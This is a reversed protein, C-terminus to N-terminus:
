QKLTIWGFTLDDWVDDNIVYNHEELLKKYARADYEYNSSSKDNEEAYIDVMKQALAENEVSNLLEDFSIGILAQREEGLDDWFYVADNEAYGIEKEDLTVNREKAMELFIFDHIARSMTNEKAALRIFKGNTHVNWFENSNEPNYLLAENEVKTEMKAIYYALDRLTYEKEDVTVVTMDLSDLYEIKTNKRVKIYVVNATILVLCVLTLIFRKNISM